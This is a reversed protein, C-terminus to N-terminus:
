NAFVTKVIFITRNINQNIIEVVLNGDIKVIQLCVMRQTKLQIYNKKLCVSKVFMLM